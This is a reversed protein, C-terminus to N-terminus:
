APWLSGPHLALTTLHDRGPGRRTRAAPTRREPPTAPPFSVGTARESVSWLRAGLARDTAPAVLADAHIRLDHKRLSPGLLVGTPAAPATAAFLLPLAGAEASRGLALRLARNILWEAVNGTQQQMPTDAVGPHAALSRVPSGIVRLRRELEDAFLLVALKSAVYARGAPVDAALDDLPLTAKLHRYLNSGVSVVRPQEAQSLRDLLLGTLAFHGLHNTAFTSQYGQASLRAAPKVTGANNVLLHLSPHNTRVADAFRAVSDLDDLELAYVEVRAAAEPGIGALVREAKGRDRVGMVVTAGRSALARAVVAGLGSSAGTVVAVKSWRYV